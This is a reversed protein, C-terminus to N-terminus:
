LGGGESTTTQAVSTQETSTTAVTSVSQGNGMSTKLAAIAQIFSALSKALDAALVPSYSFLVGVPYALYDAWSLERTNSEGIFGYSLVGAALLAFWRNIAHKGQENKTISLYDVSMSKNFLSKIREKM